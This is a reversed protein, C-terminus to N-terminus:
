HGIRAVLYSHFINFLYLLHNCTFVLLKDIGMEVDHHRASFTNVELFRCVVKLVHESSEAYVYGSFAIVLQLQKYVREGAVTELHIRFVVAEEGNGICGHAKHILLM